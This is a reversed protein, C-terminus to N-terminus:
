KVIIPKIISNNKTDIKLLYYGSKFDSLNISNSSNLHTSQYLIRGQHDTIYIKELEIESPIIITLHNEVPNPYIQVGLFIKSDTRAFGQESVPLIYHDYFTFNNMIDCNPYDLTNTDIAMTIKIPKPQNLQTNLTLTTDIYDSMEFDICKKHFINVHLTDNLLTDTYRLNYDNPFYYTTWGVYLDNSSYVDFHATDIERLYGNIYNTDITNQSLVLQHVLSFLITLTLHKLM